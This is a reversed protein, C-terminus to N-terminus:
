ELNTHKGTNFPYFKLYSRSQLDTILVVKTLQELQKLQSILKPLLRINKSSIYWCSLECVVQLQLSSFFPQNKRIKPKAIYSFHPRKYITQCLVSCKKINNKREVVKKTWGAMQVQHMFYCDDIFKVGFKRM